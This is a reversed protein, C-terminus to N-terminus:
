RLSAEELVRSERLLEELAATGADYRTEPFCRKCPRGLREAFDRPMDIGVWEPEGRWGEPTWIEAKGCVSPGAVQTEDLMVPKHFIPWDGSAWNWLSWRPFFVMERRRM